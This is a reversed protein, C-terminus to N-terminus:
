CRTNGGLEDRTRGCRVAYFTPRIAFVALETM